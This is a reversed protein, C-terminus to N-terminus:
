RLAAEHGTGLREMLESVSVRACYACSRGALTAMIVITPVHM